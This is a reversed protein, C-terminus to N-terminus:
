LLEVNVGCKKRGKGERRREKWGITQQLTQSNAWIGLVVVAGMGPWNPLRLNTGFSLSFTPYFAWKERVLVWRGRRM